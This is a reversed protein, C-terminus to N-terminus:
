RDLVPVLAGYASLGIIGVIAAVGGAAAVAVFWPRRRPPRNQSAVSPAPRPAEAPSQRKADPPPTEAAKPASAITSAAARAERKGSAQGAAAFADSMETASQWRSWPDAALAKAVVDDLWTPADPRLQIARTGPRQRKYARGTLMEFLVCGLAFLDAAATLYGAGAEQEPPSYLPTNPHLGRGLRSRESLARVQAVGFDTLYARGHEDLVINSPKVDRHVIAMPHNHAAELARLIDVAVAVVREVPLGQVNQQILSALDGGPMYEMVLLVGGEHPEATLAHVTNPARALLASVHVERRYREQIDPLDEPLLDQRPAKIAVLRSALTTEEALWVRAMGGEGILRVIRYKGDLISAGAALPV